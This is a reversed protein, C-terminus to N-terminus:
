LRLRLRIIKPQKPQDSALEETTRPVDRLHDAVRLMAAIYVSRSVWYSTIM